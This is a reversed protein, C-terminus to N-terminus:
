VQQVLPVLGSRPDGPTRYPDIDYVALPPQTGALSEGFEQRSERGFVYSVGSRAMLDGEYSCDIFVRAAIRRAAPTRPEAM